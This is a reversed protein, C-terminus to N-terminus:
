LGHKLEYRAITLRGTGLVVRVCLTATALKLFLLSIGEGGVGEEHSRYRDLSQSCDREVKIGTPRGVDESANHIEKLKKTM